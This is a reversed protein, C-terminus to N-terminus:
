SIAAMADVTGGGSWDNLMVGDCPIIMTDDTRRGRWSDSGVGYCSISVMTDM